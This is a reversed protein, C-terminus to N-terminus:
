KESSKFPLIWEDKKSDKRHKLLFNGDGAMLMSSFDGDSRKLADHIKSLFEHYRVGNKTADKALDRFQELNHNGANFARACQSAIKGVREQEDDFARDNTIISEAPIVVKDNNTVGLRAIADDKDLKLRLPSKQLELQSNIKDVIEKNTFGMRNLSRFTESLRDQNPYSPVGPQHREGKVMLDSIYGVRDGLRMQRAMAQFALQFDADKTSEASKSAQDTAKPQGTDPLKRDEPDTATLFSCPPLSESSVTSIVKSLIKNDASTWYGSSLNFQVADSSGFNEIAM